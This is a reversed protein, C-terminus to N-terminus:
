LIGRSVYIEINRQEEKWVQKVSGVNELGRMEELFDDIGDDQRREVSTVVVSKPNVKLLTNITENLLQWSKGYLPEFVCDCNLIIDFGTSSRNTQELLKLVDEHSWSLPSAQVTPGMKELEVRVENTATASLATKPFNNLVNKEMQSLIDAQDTLVVTGGLLHYIMGPVGLGCGLEIMSPRCSKTEGEENEYSGSVNNSPITVFDPKADLVGAVYQIGRVAAGWLRTGAWRSGDFLPAIDDEELLTSLIIKRLKKASQENSSDANNDADDSKKAAKIVVDYGDSIADDVDHDAEYVGPWSVCIAEELGANRISQFSVFAECSDISKEDDWDSSSDDDNMVATTTAQNTTM